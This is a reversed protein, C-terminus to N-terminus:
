VNFRINLVDGDMVVYQKGEVRLSGKEKAAQWGGLELLSKWDLTEARIFGRELDSHIVGAAEPATVGRTVTWARVEDDGVTFFSILNLLRYSAIIMRNLAPESIGLDDLFSTADEEELQAIEMEVKACLALANQQDPCGSLQDLIQAEHGLEEEPINLVGLVPKQSLFQYGRLKKEDEPAFNLNRIVGGAEIEEKCQELLKWEHVLEPKKTSRAEKSLRNLRREIIELDAIALELEVSEFDERPKVPTGALDPFGRMVHVLLDMTRLDNIGGSGLQEEQSGSGVTIGGIDLYVVNAFTTKLPNFLESLSAVRQDPVKVTGRNAKNLGTFGGIEANARVLANFLATKGSGPLGVLGIQLVM